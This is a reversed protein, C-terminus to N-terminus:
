IGRDVLSPVLRREMKQRSFGNIVKKSTMKLFFIGLYFPVLITSLAIIPADIKQAVLVTIDQKVNSSNQAATIVYGTLFLALTSVIFLMFVFVWIPAIRDRISMRRLLNKNLLDQNKNATHFQEYNLEPLSLHFKERTM